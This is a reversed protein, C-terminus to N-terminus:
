RRNRAHLPSQSLRACLPPPSHLTIATLRGVSRCAGRHVDLVLRLMDVGPSGDFGSVEVSARKKVKLARSPVRANRTQDSLILPRTQHAVIPRMHVHLAAENTPEGVGSVRIYM